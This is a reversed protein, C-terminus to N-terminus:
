LITNLDTDKYKGEIFFKLVKKFGAPQYYGPLNNMKSGNYKFEIVKGDSDLFVHTPYAEVQFLNSLDSSTYTKGNYVQKESSEANLKVYICNDEILDKIDSNSYTDKDMKKCWGCWDTYVDVIVIKNQEKADNLAEDFSGSIVKHNMFLFLMLAAGLSPLVVFNKKGIM